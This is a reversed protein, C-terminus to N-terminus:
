KWLHKDKVRSREVLESLSVRLKLAKEMQKKRVELGAWCLWEVFISRPMRGRLREITEYLQPSVKVGLFRKTYRKQTSM